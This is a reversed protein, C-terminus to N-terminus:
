VVDSVNLRSWSSEHKECRERMVHDFDLEGFTSWQDNNLRVPIGLPLTSLAAEAALQRQERLERQKVACRSWLRLILKLKAEAFEKHQSNEVIEQNEIEQHSHPPKDGLDDVATGQLVSNGLAYDYKDSPRESLSKFDSIAMTQPVSNRTIYDHKGRLSREPLSKVNDIAMSRPISNGVAHDFIDSPSREPQSAQSIILFPMQEMGSTITREPLTTFLADNNAKEMVAVKAHLSRPSSRALSFNFPKSAGSKLHGDQLQQVGKSTEIVSHLQVGDKPSPIVKSDPMEEDFASISNERRPSSTANARQKYVKGLQSEKTAGVPLSTVEHPIAVDGAITRSRKQHVLRSCKTPYDNEANLFSHEKVMYPEEFEKISFGYYDLISEIDEEEIGLWRAVYTVPLGQNNQLSSHLSAFAQTRLKAFHAHMLCAQLYSARRALRFCAVFNGTRCARAVDRAFLVESTQRIEPTMKALDLSLEAPEVKYGPHKDLKLLAYYGRFEKETPVNIGKKRHDDYM